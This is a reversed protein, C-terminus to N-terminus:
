APRTTRERVVATRDPETVHTKPDSPPEGPATPNPPSATAPKAKRYPPMPHKAAHAMLEERFNAPLLATFRNTLWERLHAVRPSSEGIKRQREAETVTQAVYVGLLRVNEALQHVYQFHNIVFLIHGAPPLWISNVCAGGIVSGYTDMAVPRDQRDSTAAWWQSAKGQVTWRKEFLRPSCKLVSGRPFRWEGDMYYARDNADFGYPDVRHHHMHGTQDEFYYVRPGFVGFAFSWVFTITPILAFLGVPIWALPLQNIKDSLQVLALSTFAMAVLATWMLPKNPVRFWDWLSGRQKNCLKCGKEEKAHKQKKM